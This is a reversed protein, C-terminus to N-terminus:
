AGSFPWKRYKYHVISNSTQNAVCYLFFYWVLRITLQMTRNLQPVGAVRYLAHNLGTPLGEPVKTQVVDVEVEDMPRKPELYRLSIWQAHFGVLGFLILFAIIAKVNHLKQRTGLHLTYISRKFRIFYVLLAINFWLTSIKSSFLM